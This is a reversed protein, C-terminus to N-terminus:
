RGPPNKGHTAVFSICDGQNEFIGYSQWGGKKCQDASTPVPPSTFSVTTSVTQSDLTASVNATGPAPSTLAVAAKGGSTGATNASLIGFDTAFAIVTGNSITASTSTDTGASDHTVDATVTSSGGTTVSSPSASIGLVLWPDFATGSQTSCGANGPGANCGWWNDRADVSGGSTPANYVGTAPDGDGSENSLNNGRLTLSAGLAFSGAGVYVGVGNGSFDNGTITIPSAIPGAGVANTGPIIKVARFPSGTLTNGSVDIAGINPDDDFIVGTGSNATVMSVTNNSVHVPGGMEQFIAFSSTNQTDHNGAVTVMGQGAWGDCFFYIDSLADLSAGDFVNNSVQVGSCDAPSSWQVVAGGHNYLEATPSTFYNAVVRANPASTGSLASDYFGEPQYGVFMNDEVTANAAGLQVQNGAYGFSFGDITVDSAYVGITGGTVVSETAPDEALRAPAGPNGAQAGELTLSKYISVSEPYTGAAVMITDGDTANEVAQGITQCPSTSAGCTSSDAGTAANVYFTTAGYAPAADALLISAAALAAAAAATRVSIRKM